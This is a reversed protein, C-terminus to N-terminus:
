YNFVTTPNITLEDTGNSPSNQGDNRIMIDVHSGTSSGRGPDNAGGGSYGIIAGAEVWQGNEVTRQSMHSTIVRINGDPNLYSSDPNLAVFSGFTSDDGIAVTGSAAAYIPTGTPVAIDISGHFERKGTFPNNRWGYGSSIYGGNVPNTWQTRSALVSNIYGQQVYPPLRQLLQREHQNLQEIGHLDGNNYELYRGPGNQRGDPDRMVVPNNGAYHYTHMNILNFIGGMGPLNQNHKKADDNIPAQPIYEAM